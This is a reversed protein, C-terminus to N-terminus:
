LGDSPVYYGKGWDTMSLISLPYLHTLSSGEEVSEVNAKQRITEDMTNNGLDTIGNSIIVFNVRTCCPNSSCPDM